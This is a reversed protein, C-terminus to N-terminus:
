VPAGGPRGEDDDLQKRLRALFEPDDDPALRGRATPGGPRATRPPRVSGQSPGVSGRRAGPHDGAPRAMLDSRRPRGLWLWVLAGPAATLAILLLWAWKPLRRVLEKPTTAADLLAYLWVVLGVIGLLVQM